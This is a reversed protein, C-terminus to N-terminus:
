SLAREHEDQLQSVGLKGDLIESKRIANRGHYKAQPFSNNMEKIRRKEERHNYYCILLLGSTLILAFVAVSTLTFSKIITEM